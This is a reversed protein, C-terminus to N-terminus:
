LQYFKNHYKCHRHYSNHYPAYRSIVSRIHFFFTITLLGGRGNKLNILIYLICLICFICFVFYVFYVCVFKNATRKVMTSPLEETAVGASFVVGVVAHSPEATRRRRRVIRASGNTTRIVVVAREREVNLVNKTHTFMPVKGSM